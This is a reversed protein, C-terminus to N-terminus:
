TESIKCAFLFRIFVLGQTRTSLAGASCLMWQLSHILFLFKWVALFDQFGLFQLNHQLDSAFGLDM